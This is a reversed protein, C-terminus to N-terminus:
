FSYAAKLWLRRGDQAYSYSDGTDRTDNFLNYIVASLKLGDYAEWTVGLDTTLTTDENKDLTGGQGFNPYFEKDRYQLTVFTSVKEMPLWNVTLNAMHKPMAVLPAGVLGDYKHFEYPM